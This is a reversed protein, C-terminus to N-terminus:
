PDQRGEAMKVPRLANLAGLSLLQPWRAVVAVVVLITGVGGLVVSTMTGLWAAVLGSEFAGLENSSVIFIANVASVRGRMQDPTLVQVLTGRVVISINDLAGTAGLMLFSLWPRNSVGFVITAAGFGTVAWLLARGAQRMPPRHALGIAMMFAGISPAARLWGLGTPGIHLIDRAYIPLLATAGGFLVAFLDLTIAAMILPTRRVFQVGALLSALSLKERPKVIERPRLSFVLWLVLLGSAATLLYATVAGGTLAIVIGGLAPGAMAAVQWGSSNWTVANTLAAEPVVLPLLAWRAPFSFAQGIGTGLLCLYVLPVPAQWASIAALGVSCVTNLAQAAGLVGKRSSRDVVHGAPLSLFLVPLFQVLGVYGLALASNTREYLEWGIAVSQMERGLSALVSAALLRRYDRMRLAAYPDHVDNM